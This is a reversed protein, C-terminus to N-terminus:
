EKGEKKREKREKEKEVWEQLTCYQVTTWMQGTEQEQVRRLPTDRRTEKALKDLADASREKWNGESVTAKVMQMGNVNWKCEMRMGNADWERKKVNARQMGSTRETNCADRGKRRYQVREEVYDITWGRNLRTKRASQRKKSEKQGDACIGQQQGGGTACFVGLVCFLCCFGNAIRGSVDLAYKKTERRKKEKRKGGEGAACIIGLMIEMSLHEGELMGRMCLLALGRGRGERGGRNAIGRPCLMHGRVFHQMMVMEILVLFLLLM